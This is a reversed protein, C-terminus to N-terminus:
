TAESRPLDTVLTLLQERTAAAANRAGEVGALAAAVGLALRLAVVEYAGAAIAADIATLRHLPATM